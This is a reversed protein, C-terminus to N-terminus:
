HLLSFSGSCWKNPPSRPRGLGWRQGGKLTDNATPGIPINEPAPANDDDVDLGQALVLAIDEATNTSDFVSEDIPEPADKPAAAPAAAEFFGKPPGEAVVIFYSSSFEIGEHDPHTFFMMKM